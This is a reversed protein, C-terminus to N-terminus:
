ELPFEKVIQWEEVEGGKVLHVSKVEFRASQNRGIDKIIKEKLYVPYNGYLLSLHPMFPPINQIGFTEKAKEHLGLLPKTVDVKVFLARFYFDQYDIEKLVISFPKQGTVLEETLRISEEESYPFKAMLEGLLTIHPQFVPGGYKQALTKILDAFRKYYEGPPMLWLSYGKAIM